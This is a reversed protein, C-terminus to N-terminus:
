MRTQFPQHRVVDLARFTFVTRILSVEWRNCTENTAWLVWVCLCLETRKKKKKEM